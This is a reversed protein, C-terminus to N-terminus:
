KSAKKRDENNLGAEFGRNTPKYFKRDKLSEPLHVQDVKADPYDHAYKYGKGYGSQKMFSTPANRIHLPVPENPSNNIEDKVQNYAVYVANSKPAVALYIAVQALIVGSEPMGIQKVSDMASQSLILAQPDALGIDEAAQRTLRRAVYMPDEGAELMRGLWYVAGQADSDRISKHLASIINYHEEGNRDYLIHKHQLALKLSDVDIHLRSEDASQMSLMTDLTTLLRRADGDASNALAQAADDEISIDIGQEAIKAIARKLVLQLDKQSLPELTLVRSRSLLASVISFSPNETTAGILTITGAEIHPLFADQQSKNFRHIEDIFIITPKQYLQQRTKADSVVKKIDAVGSTVASFEVFHAMTHKAILRALTTKGSGPPGWFIISPLRDHEILKLLIQNKGLLHQQGIVETLQQPRLQEALPTRRISEAPLEQDFLNM